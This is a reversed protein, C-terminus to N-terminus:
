YFINCITFYILVLKKGIYGPLCHCEFGNSGDVCTGNNLCPQSLCEDRDFECSPGLLKIGLQM